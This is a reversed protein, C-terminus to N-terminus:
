TDSDHLFQSFPSVHFFVAGEDDVWGIILDSAPMQGNPSIGFGVWGSTLVRVAFAITQTDLDFNWFLEYRDNSDLTASFRYAASLDHACSTLSAFASVLLIAAFARFFAM